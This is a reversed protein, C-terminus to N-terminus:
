DPIERFSLVKPRTISQAANIWCSNYYIGNNGGSSMDFGYTGLDPSLLTNTDDRTSALFVEGDIRGSGYSTVYMEGIGIVMIIGKWSFDGSVYMRGNVVLLGYGSVSGTLTLTGTFGSGGQVVVIVPSSVTGYDPLSTAPGQVVYDANQTITDVVGGPGDLGNVTKFRPQIMFPYPPNSARVDGVSDSGYAPAPGSGDGWGGDGNAGVYNNKLSPPVLANISNDILEESTSHRTGGIAYVPGHNPCGSNGVDQGDLHFNAANSPNFQYQQWVVTLASPFSLNLPYAAVVYQLTRKSGDLLVARSTIEFAQIGSSNLNLKAGDYFIPTTSDISADGDVDIKLSQETVPNIRVWKYMPGDLGAVPSVSATTQVTASTVPVGFENQYENDAFANSASLDTPDVTEGSLPNIIYRVQGVAMTTGLPNSIFTGLANPNRPWLRGRAEELGAHAAYFVRASDRYNGNLFSEIGSNLIMLVALTFLLLLCILVIVFVVGRESHKGCKGNKGRM